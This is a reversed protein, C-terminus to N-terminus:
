RSDPPTSRRGLCAPWQRAPRRRHRLTPQGRRHLGRWRASSLTRVAEALLEERGEQEGEGECNTLTQPLADPELVVVSRTGGMGRASADLWERYADEDEPAAAPTSAATATPSTTPRSSRPAAPRAPRRCWAPWRARSAEPRAPRGSRSPSARSRRSRRRRTPAGRPDGSSSRAPRPPRRTWGSSRPPRPSAARRGPWRGRRAAAAPPSVSRLSSSSRPPWGPWSGAGARCPRTSTGTSTGRARCRAARCQAARAGRPGIRIPETDAEPMGPMKEPLKSVEAGGRRGHTERAVTTGGGPTDDM